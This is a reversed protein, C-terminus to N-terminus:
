KVKIYDAQFFNKLSELESLVLDYYKMKFSFSKFLLKQIFLKRSNRDIRLDITGIINEGILIPLAYYGFRRKEKPVYSELRYEFDFVRALRKRERILNDFPSLFKCYTSNRYTLMRDIHPLDKSLIFLNEGDLYFLKCIENKDIMQQFIMKTNKDTLNFYSKIDKYTAIGINEFAVTILQKIWNNYPFSNINSSKKSSIDIIKNFNEDRSIKIFGARWLLNIVKDKDSWSWNGRNIGKNELKSSKIPLDMSRIKDIFKLYEQKDPLNRLISTNIDEFPLFLESKSSVLSLAHLYIEKFDNNYLDLYDNIKYNNIRSRFFIDQSRANTINISDLQVYGVCNIIDAMQVTKKEKFRFFQKYLQIKKFDVNNLKM